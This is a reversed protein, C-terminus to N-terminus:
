TFAVTRIVPPSQVLVRILSRSPPSQFYGTLKGSGWCKVEGNDLVACSFDNGCSIEVATRGEGLFVAPLDAGMQGNELLIRDLLFFM